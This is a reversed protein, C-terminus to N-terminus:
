IASPKPRCGLSPKPRCGLNMSPPAPPPPTPCNKKAADEKSVLVQVLKKCAPVATADICSEESSEKCIPPVPMSKKPELISVVFYICLVVFPVLLIFSTVTEGLFICAITLLSISLVSLFAHLPM